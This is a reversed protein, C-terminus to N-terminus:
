HSHPHEHAPRQDSTPVESEDHNYWHSVLNVQQPYPCDTLAQEILDIQEQSPVKDKLYYYDVTDGLFYYAVMDAFEEAWGYDENAFTEQLLTRYTQPLRWVFDTGPKPILCNALINSEFAHAAEHIVTRTVEAESREDTNIWIANDVVIWLGSASCSLAETDYFEEYCGAIFTTDAIGIQLEEPVRARLSEAWDSMGEDIGPTDSNWVTAPEPEPAVVTDELECAGLLLGLALAIVTFARKM